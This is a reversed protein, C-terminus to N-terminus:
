LVLTFNWKITAWTLTWQNRIGSWVPSGVAVRHDGATAGSDIQRDTEREREKEREGTLKTQRDTERERERGACTTSPNNM